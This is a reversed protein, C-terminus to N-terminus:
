MRAKIAIKVKMLKKRVTGHSHIKDATPIRSMKLLIQKNKKNKNLRNGSRM